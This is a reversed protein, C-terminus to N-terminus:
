TLRTAGRSLAASGSRAGCSLGFQRRSRPEKWPVIIAVPAAFTASPRSTTATQTSSVRATTTPTFSGERSDATFAIHLRGQARPPGASQDLVRRARGQWLRRSRGPFGQRRQTRPVRAQEYFTKSRDHDKAAFGMHDLM